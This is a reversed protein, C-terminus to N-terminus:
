YGSAPAGGRVRGSLVREIDGLLASAGFRLRAAGLAAEGLHQRVLAIYDLADAVTRIGGAAKFGVPQM